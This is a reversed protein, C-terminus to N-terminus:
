IIIQAIHQGLTLFYSYASTIYMQQHAEIIVRRYSFFYSLALNLIYLMFIIQIHQIEEPVEKILLHIFPTLIIGAVLVFTGVCAYLLKYLYSLQKLKETDNEAIPKYMFYTIATGIGLESLSLLVLINSFYGEIGLFNASLMRTFVMRCVFSTLMTLIQGILGILANRISNRQRM